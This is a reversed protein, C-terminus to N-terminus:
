DATTVDYHEVREPFDLLFREDQPYYRARTVDDGAFATISEERDWLSITIVEGYRDCDKTFMWAGRNGATARYDTLGTRAIYARYEELMGPRVRGRWIRAIVRLQV